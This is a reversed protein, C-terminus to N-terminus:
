INKKALVLIESLQVDSLGLTLIKVESKSHIVTVGIKRGFSQHLIKDKDIDTFNIETRRWRWGLLTAGNIKEDYIALVYYPYAPVSLSLLYIPMFLAFLGVTKIMEEVSQKNIFWLILCLIPISPVFYYMSYAFWSFTFNLSSPRIKVSDKYIELSIKNKRYIFYFMVAYFLLFGLILCLITTLGAMLMKVGM